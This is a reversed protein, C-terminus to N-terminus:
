GGTAIDRIVSSDTGDYKFVLEADRFVKNHSAWYLHENTYCMSFVNEKCITEIKFTKLDLKSLDQNSRLFIHGEGDSIVEKIKNSTLDPWSEPRFVEITRGDFRNLGDETAIWVYGFEDRCVSNVLNHSLGNRSNLNYVQIEKSSNAHASICVALLTCLILISKNQPM